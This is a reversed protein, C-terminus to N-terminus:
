QRLNNIQQDKTQRMLGLRRFRRLFKRVYQPDVYPFKDYLEIAIEQTDTWKLAM